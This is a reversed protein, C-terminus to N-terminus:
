GALLREVVHGAYYSLRYSPNQTAQLRHIGVGLIFNEARWAFPGSFDGNRNLVNQTFFRM